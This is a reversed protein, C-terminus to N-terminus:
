QVRAIACASRRGQLHCRNRLVGHRDHVAVNWADPGAREMTMFGFGGQWASFSAIVAGPAPQVASVDDPLPVLDEQTGSFGAVLQTPHDTRFSVQQWLHAHGSLLAQV